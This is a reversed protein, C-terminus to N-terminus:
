TWLCPISFFRLLHSKWTEEQQNNAIIGICYFRWLFRLVLNLSTEFHQVHPLEQLTIRRSLTHTGWIEQAMALRTGKKKTINQMILQYM